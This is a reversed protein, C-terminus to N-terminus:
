QKLGLLVGIMEDATTILKAAATYASQYKVLNTMEEDLNIGSVSEKRELASAALASHYSKNTESHLKDSGVLSVLGAYYEPLSMRDQKWFTNIQVDKTALQGVANAITNDGENVEFGGNVRGASIRTYDNAIDTSLSITAATNGSFLSNLGLAALLGTTDQGFAFTVHGSSESSLNIQLKGDQIQADFAQVTKVTSAADDYFTVDISNLAACVGELSAALHNNGQRDPIMTDLDRPDYNSNAGFVLVNGNQELMKGTHADYFYCNINGETIKDYFANCSQAYGMAQDPHNVKMEGHAYTLKELGAGQSHLRNVEWVITKALADMEDLYRGCTDDRINFYSTLKGGTLRNTNDSGTLTIQPTINEPGRTPEKWYLGTKPVIDFKDGAKLTIEDATSGEGEAFDFSIFLDKVRVPNTVFKNAEADFHGSVGVHLDSGDDNKLWSVGGDLSVRFCPVPEATSDLRPPDTITGGTVVELTYEFDDNGDATVKGKFTSEPLLRNEAAPANFELTYTTLGDVLSQGTALQVRYNGYGNDITKIDVLTALEEVLADRQDYLGNPDTVHPIVTEGIKKNIATIAESIENVRKVTEKISINMEEQVARVSRDMSSFMDDLTQAYNLVSTRVAPDDPYQALKQWANFFQNLTDSLGTTNSENFVSELTEMINDYETWRSSVTSENLYSDELFKDFYRLVQEANSGLGYQNHAITVTPAENQVVYRRTYGPSDANAINDGTVNVWAQATTLASKGITLLNSLM